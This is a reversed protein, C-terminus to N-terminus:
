VVIFYNKIMDRLDEPFNKILPQVHAWSKIDSFKLVWNMIEKKVSLVHQQKLKKDTYEFPVYQNCDLVYCDYRNYHAIITEHTHIRISSYKKAFEKCDGDLKSTDITHYAVLFLLSDSTGKAVQVDTVTIPKYTVFNLSGKPRFASDKEIVDEVDPYLQLIYELLEIEQNQDKIQNKLSDLKKM